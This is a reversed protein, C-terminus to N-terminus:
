ESLPMVTILEKYDPFTPSVGFVWRIGEWEKVVGDDQHRRKSVDRGERWANEALKTVFTGIGDPNVGTAPDAMYRQWREIFRLSFQDYAHRSITLYENHYPSQKLKRRAIDLWEKPFKQNLMWRLYSNPLQDIPTGAYRGVTIKPVAAKRYGGM